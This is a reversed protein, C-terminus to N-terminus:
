ASDVRKVRNVMFDMAFVIILNLITEMQCDACYPGNHKAKHVALIIITFDASNPPGKIPRTSMICLGESLRNMNWPSIELNDPLPTPNYIMTVTSTLHVHGCPMTYQITMFNGQQITYDCFKRKIHYLWLIEKNYLITM